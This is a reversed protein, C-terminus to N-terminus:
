CTCHFLGGVPINKEVHENYMKVGQKTSAVIVEIDNKELFHITKDPVRLRLLMGRTLVIVRAGHAILEKVDEVQIGRSHGTGFESWDWPRGGGPWLKFDKGSGIREVVMRGWGIELIKLSANSVADM